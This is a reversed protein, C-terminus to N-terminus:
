KKRIIFSFGFDEKYGNKLNYIIQRDFDDLSIKSMTITKTEKFGEKKLEDITKDIYTIYDNDIRSDHVGSKDQKVFVRIKELKYM